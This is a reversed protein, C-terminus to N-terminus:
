NRSTTSQVPLIVFFFLLISYWFFYTYLSTSDISFFELIKGLSKLIFFVFVIFITTRIYKRKDLKKLANSGLNTAGSFAGMASGLMGTREITNSGSATQSDADFPPPGSPEAAPLNDGNVPANNPEDVVDGGNVSANNHEDDGVGNGESM